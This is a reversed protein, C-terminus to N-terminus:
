REAWDCPRSRAATPACCSTTAACWWGAMTATAETAPADFRGLDRRTGTDVDVAGVAGNDVAILTDRDLIAIADGRV